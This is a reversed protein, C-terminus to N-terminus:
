VSLDREIYIEKSFFSIFSIMKTKEYNNGHKTLAALHQVQAHLVSRSERNNVGKERKNEDRNPFLERASIGLGPRSPV